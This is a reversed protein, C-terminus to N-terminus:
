VKPMVARQAINRLIVATCVLSPSFFFGCCLNIHLQGDRRGRVAVAHVGRLPLAAEGPRRPCCSCPRGPCGRPHGGQRGQFCEVFFVCFLCRHTLDARCGFVTATILRREPQLLSVGGSFFCYRRLVLSDEIWEKIKIRRVNSFPAQNLSRRLSASTPMLILLYIAACRM